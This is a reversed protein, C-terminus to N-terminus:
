WALSMEWARASDAISAPVLALTKRMSLSVERIKWSFRSREGFFSVEWCCWREGWFDWAEILNKVSIM